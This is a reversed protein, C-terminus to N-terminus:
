PRCRQLQQGRRQRMQFLIGFIWFLFIVTKRYLWCTSLKAAIKLISGKFSRLGSTLLSFHLQMGAFALHCVPLLLEDISMAFLKRQQTSEHATIRLSALLCQALKTAGQDQKSLKLTTLALAARCCDCQPYWSECDNYCTWWLCSDHITFSMTSDTTSEKLPFISLVCIRWALTLRHPAEFTDQIRLQSLESHKGKM